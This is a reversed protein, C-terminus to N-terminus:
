GQFLMPFILHVMFLGGIFFGIVAVLSPWQLNSLGSIAHGSTCGGAYRTGFGIMLGGISWIGINRLSWEGFLETPLYSTGASFVGLEELRKVTADALEPPTGNSLFQVSLFGGLVTGVLFLLNWQQARWDFRFFSASKGAGMAACMVRFNSSFGFTKGLIILAVMVLAVLSGGIYWPWPNMLWEM